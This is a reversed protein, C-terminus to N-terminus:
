EFLDDKDMKFPYDGFLTALFRVRYTKSTFRNSLAMIMVKENKLNVYSSTNGHWWGNHFYFHQGTAWDIMRMGLGYNKEGKHEYSYGVYVKKMLKPDLFAPNYRAYDFRVMDRPTSYINKDGYVADLFDIGIEVNNAKYSPVVKGRDKDYDFVFTHTMGLPDFIMKKMAKGYSMGTIKEIVLALMAYNTNCYTFKKDTPYDLPTKNKIFLDLIDQNRLPKHHDWIKRDDAYYAYNRLGSRHNLLTKITIKPYPFGDLITNVKQDLDIKGSNILKLIATATLVKSVSALHLPTTATIKTGKKKDAYGQYKEYLIHGEKAVLFSINEDERRWNKKFFRDIGARKSAVYEKKLGAKSPEYPKMITSTDKIEDSGSKGNRSCSM